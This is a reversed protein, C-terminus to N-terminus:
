KSIEMMHLELDNLILEMNKISKIPIHHVTLINKVKKVMKSLGSLFEPSLSGKVLIFFHTQKQEPILFAKENYNGIFYWSKFLDPQDYFYLPYTLMEKLKDNFARLDLKKVFKLDLIENISWILRYDKLHSAIGILTFDVDSSSILKLKKAM